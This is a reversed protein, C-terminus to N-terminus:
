PTGGFDEPKFGFEELIENRIEKMIELAFTSEIGYDVLKKHFILYIKLLAKHLKEQRKKSM